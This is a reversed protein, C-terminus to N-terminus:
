RHQLEFHSTGPANASPASPDLQARRSPERQLEPVWNQVAQVRTVRLCAERPMEGTPLRLPEFLYQGIKASARQEKLRLKGTEERTRAHHGAKGDTCVILKATFDAGLERRWM